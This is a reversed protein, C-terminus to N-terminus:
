LDCSVDIPYSMSREMRFREKKNIELTIIIFLLCLCLLLLLIDVIDAFFAGELRGVWVRGERGCSVLPDTPYSIGEM